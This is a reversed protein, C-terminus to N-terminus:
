SANVPAVHVFIGSNFPFYKESIKPIKM